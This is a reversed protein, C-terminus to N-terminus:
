WGTKDDFRYNSNNEKSHKQMCFYSCKKVDIHQRTENEKKHIVQESWKGM